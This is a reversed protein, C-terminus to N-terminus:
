RGTEEVGAMGDDDPMPRRLSLYVACCQSFNLSSRYPEMRRGRCPEHIQVNARRSTISAVGADDHVSWLLTAVPPRARGCDESVATCEGTCALKTLQSGSGRQDAVVLTHDVNVQVPM